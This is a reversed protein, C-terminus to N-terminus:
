AVDFTAIAEARVNGPWTAIATAHAPGQCSVALHWIWRYDGNGQDRIPPSEVQTGDCYYVDITVTAGPPGTVCLEGSLSHVAVACTFEIVPQQPKSGNWQVLKIGFLVVALLLIATALPERSAFRRLM